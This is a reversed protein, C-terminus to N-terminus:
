AARAASKLLAEVVKRPTDHPMGGFARGSAFRVGAARVLSLASMGPVDEMYSCARQAAAARVLATALRAIAVPGAAAPLKAFVGTAGLQGDELLRMGADPVQVFVRPAFPRITAVIEALRAAPTGPPVDEIKVLLYPNALAAASRLAFQYLRRGRPSALTEFSVPTAAAAALNAGAILRTLLLSQELMAEDLSPRDRPDIAQLPAATDRRADLPDRYPACLFTTATCRRLDYIPSFGLHLGAYGPVGSAALRAFPDPEVDKAASPPPPMAAPTALGSWIETMAASRFLPALKGAAISYTGFLLQLLTTNITQALALAPAGSRVVLYFATDQFLVLEAPALRVVHQECMLRLRAPNRALGADFRDLAPALDFHFAPKGALEAPDFTGDVRWVKDACDMM